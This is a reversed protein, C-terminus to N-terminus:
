CVPLLFFNKNKDFSAQFPLTKIKKKKQFNLQM